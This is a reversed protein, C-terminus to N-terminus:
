EFILLFCLRTLYFIVMMNAKSTNASAHALAMATTSTSMSPLNEQNSKGEEKLKISSLIAFVNKGFSKAGSQLVTSRTRWCRERSLIETHNEETVPVDAYDKFVFYAFSIFM